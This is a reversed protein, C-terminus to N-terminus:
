GSSLSRPQHGLIWRHQDRHGRRVWVPLDQPLVSLAGSLLLLDTTGALYNEGCQTPASESQSFASTESMSRDAKSWDIAVVSEFSGGDDKGIEGETKESVYTEGYRDKLSTEAVLVGTSM